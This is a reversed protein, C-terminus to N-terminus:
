ARFVFFAGDEERRPAAHTVHVERIDVVLVSSERKALLVEVLVECVLTLSAVIVDRPWGENTNAKGWCM